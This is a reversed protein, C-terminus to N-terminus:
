SHIREKHSIVLVTPLEITPFFQANGPSNGFAFHASFLERERKLVEKKKKDIKFNFFVNRM